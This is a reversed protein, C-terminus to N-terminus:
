SDSSVETCSSWMEQATTCADESLSTLDLTASGWGWLNEIMLTAPTPPPRQRSVVDRGIGLHHELAAPEWGGNSFRQCPVRAPSVISCRISGPLL